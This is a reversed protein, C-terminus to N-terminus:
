GWPVKRPMLGSYAEPIVLKLTATESSADRSFSISKILFNYHDYIMADQAILKVITNPKWLNGLSDRWTSLEVSYSASEAFMRAARSQAAEKVGAGETDGAVATSPRLVGTLLPNIETYEEGGGASDIASIHSYYSQPDINSTVSILPSAGQKFSAVPRGNIKSKLFVLGGDKSSTVVLGRQKALKILFPMITEDPEIAVVDFIAGEDDDFKAEIGFPKLLAKAIASLGQDNFEVDAGLPITCDNLVGSKAYGSVEITKSSPTIAPSISMMTGSFIQEGGIFLDLPKYSLQSFTKRFSKSESDFPASFAVTAIQDISLNIVARTWFRYRVGEIEISVEESSGAPRNALAKSNRPITLPTGEPIPDSVGPNATAILGSNSEFGYIIRSVREFTDGSKASYM